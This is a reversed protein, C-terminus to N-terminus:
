NNDCNLYKFTATLGNNDNWLLKSVQWQTKGSTGRLDWSKICTQTTAGRKDYFIHYNKCGGSSNRYDNEKQYPIATIEFSGTQTDGKKSSISQTFKLSEIRKFDSSMTGVATCEATGDVVQSGGGGRWGSSTNFSGSFSTGSWTIPLNLVDFFGTEQDMDPTQKASINFRFNTYLSLYKSATLGGQSPAPKASKVCASQLMVTLILGPIVVGAIIATMRNLM